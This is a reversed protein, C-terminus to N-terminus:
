HPLNLKSISDNGHYHKCLLLTAEYESMKKEKYLTVAHELFSTLSQDAILPHYHRSAEFNKEKIDKLTWSNIKQLPLQWKNIFEHSNQNYLVQHNLEKSNKFTISGYHHIFVEQAIVCKYEALLARLCFDDDEFNGKQFRLDFGGIKNIVERKILMCFGIVREVETLQDKYTQQHNRSYSDLNELQYVPDNILQPPQVYNSVPGLIGCQSHANMGKVLGQIWDKTVIVDNNLLLIYKGSSCAIGQNNAGGFGKNEENLLVKVNKYKQATQNIYPRTGDISANDVIILEFPVNTHQFISEVCQKTYTLQNKTLVIISVLLDFSKKNFFPGFVSHNRNSENM